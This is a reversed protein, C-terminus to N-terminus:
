RVVSVSEPHFIFFRQIPFANNNFFFTNSTKPKQPTSQFVSNFRFSGREQSMANLIWGAVIGEQTALDGYVRFIGTETGTNPTATFSHTSADSFLVSGTFSGGIFKGVVQAGNSNTLSIDEPDTINGSFWESIEEEGNCVYVIAEENAILLAIFANTGDVTGVFGNKGQVDFFTEEPETSSSCSFVFFSIL